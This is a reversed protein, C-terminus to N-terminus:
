AWTHVGFSVCGWDAMEQIMETTLYAPDHDIKSGILFITAKMDYKQLVPLAYDYNNRMGDDFTILRPNEPLNEKSDLVKALEHTTITQYGMANFAKLQADFVASEVNYASTM